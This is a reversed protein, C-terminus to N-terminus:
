HTEPYLKRKLANYSGERIFFADGTIMRVVAYKEVPKDTLPTKFQNLSSLSVLYDLNIIITKDKNKFDESCLTEGEEFFTLKYFETNKNM